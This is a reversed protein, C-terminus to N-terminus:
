KQEDTRYLHYGDSTIIGNNLGDEIKKGIYKVYSTSDPKFMDSATSMDDFLKYMRILEKNLIERDKKYDIDM